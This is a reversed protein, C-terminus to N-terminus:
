DADVDKLSELEDWRAYHQELESTIKELRALVTGTTGKDQKYFSADSIKENLQVQEEELKEILAPIKDLERQEKHGLRKPVSSKLRPKTATKQEKISTQQSSVKQTLWDSYGGVYENVVGEDEFVLTSTVVNDMFARDHSVLLLTGDFNVLLEELLELTEIDLDNTPEDMVLLNVSKSFLRALLIRAREGGSLSKIPSRARAPAFLFDGLYSIVHRTKGNITIQDSGDGIAEVVTQNLDLQERLQDFYAIELSTGIKLEGKQPKIKGLLLKLLTTKGAGNPGILGIRDGRIIRTSFDKVITREPYSYDVEKVEIVLKGSRDATELGFKANSQQERRQSREDRMKKLARVRGENRTRRAKIGQRIWVEEQALKKDFLANQREEEELAAAKRRLFDAYNGPWSILKGRDLDVIRTALKQLFARDHTVFLVAGKFSVLHEELWLISELDLHNTPEDLLLVDPDCVLARALAVRRKWGGSLGKVSKDAPLDLRTLIQEVKQQLQWGDHDDLLHQLRGLEAMQRDVDMDQAMAVHHYEAIWGGVDGLGAAVSDYISEDGSLSPAQELTALKAGPKLWISGEDPKVEGSIIKLLTSKGEGNRGLLGVREGAKLQFEAKELLHHVGFAISLDSIRLLAM